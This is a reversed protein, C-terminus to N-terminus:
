PSARCGLVKEQNKRCLFVLLIGALSTSNVGLDTLGPRGVHIWGTSAEWIGEAQAEVQEWIEHKRCNDSKSMNWHDSYRIVLIERFRIVLWFYRGESSIPCVEPLLWNHTGSYCLFVQYVGLIFSPLFFAGYNGPLRRLLWPLFCLGSTLAILVKHHQWIDTTVKGRSNRAM